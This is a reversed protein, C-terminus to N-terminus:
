PRDHHGGISPIAPNELLDRLQHLARSTQSKVTGVGIRLTEATQQETLDHWYRLVIVSRQRFPLSRIARVLTDRDDLQAIVDRMPPEHSTLGIRERLGWGRGRDRCQNVV